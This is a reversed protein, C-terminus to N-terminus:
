LPLNDLEHNRLSGIEMGRFQWALAPPCPLPPKGVTHIHPSMMLVRSSSSTKSFLYSPRVVHKRSSRKGRVLVRGHRGSRFLLYALSISSSVWVRFHAIDFMTWTHCPIRISAQVQSHKLSPRLQAALAGSPRRHASAQLRLTRWSALNCLRSCFRSMFIHTMLSFLALCHLAISILLVQIDGFLKGSLALTLFANYKPALLTRASCYKNTIDPLRPASM